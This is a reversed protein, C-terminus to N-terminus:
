YQNIIFELSSPVSMGDSTALVVTTDGQRLLGGDGLLSEFIATHTVSDLGSFSDDFIVLEKRAYVARAIALRQKQGGSLSIGRGGISTSDGHEWQQLEDELACAAMITRFWKPDYESNSIILEQITLNPLFPTQDCYAVGSTLFSTKVEGVFCGPMEGLICRLFTSKGCGVPGLIVTLTKRYISLEEITLSPQSAEPWVVNGKMFVIADKPVKTSVGGMLDMELNSHSIGGVLHHIVSLNATHEQCNEGTDPNKKPIEIKKEHEEMNLYEQIRGFSTVAAAISSLSIIM